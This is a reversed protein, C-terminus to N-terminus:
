PEAEPNDPNPNSLFRRVLIIGAIGLLPLLTLTLGVRGIWQHVIRWSEGALYGLIAFLAAWVLCGAANYLFFRRYQVKSSGALFPMLARGLHIFHSFFIAKGGHRPFFSEVRDLRSATIGFRKGRRLLWDRGLRRGLEYSITDGLMAALLVVLILDSLPFIGQAAMFGSALVMSEGPFLLGIIAQCELLVVLFVIVFGWIGLHDVFQILRDLM